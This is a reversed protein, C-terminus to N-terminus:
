QCLSIHLWFLMENLTNNFTYYGTSKLQLNPLFKYEAYLNGLFDNKIPPFRPADAVFLPNTQPKYFEGPTPSYNGNEDRAPITPYFLTAFSLPTNNRRVRSLADLKSRTLTVSAGTKLKDNIKKDANLRATVREFGTGRVIGDQKFRGLAIM